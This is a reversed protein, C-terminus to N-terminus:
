RCSSAVVTTPISMSTVDFSAQPRETVVGGVGVLDTLHLVVRGGSEVREEVSLRNGNCALGVMSGGQMPHLTGIDYTGGSTLTAVASASGAGMSTVTIADVRGDGDLDFSPRLDFVPPLPDSGATNPAAPPDPVAGDGIPSEAIPATSEAPVASEVRDVTTPVIDAWVLTTTPNVAGQSAVLVSSEPSANEGSGGCAGASLAFAVLVSGVLVSRKSNGAM